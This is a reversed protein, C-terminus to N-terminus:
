FRLSLGIHVGETEIRAQEEEVTLIVDDIRSAQRGYAVEFGVQDTVRLEVGLELRGASWDLGEVRTYRAYPECFSTVQWGAELGTMFGIGGERVRSDSSSVKVEGFAPGVRPGFRLGKWTFEPAFLVHGVTASYDPQLGAEEFDGEVHSVGAEYATRYAFRGGDDRPARGRPVWQARASTLLSSGDTGRFEESSQCGALAVLSALWAARVVRRSRNSAMDNM